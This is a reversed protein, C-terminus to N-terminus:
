TGGDVLTPSTPTADGSAIGGADSARLLAASRRSQDGRHAARDTGASARAQPSLEQAAEEQVRDGQHRAAAARDQRRVSADAVTPTGIANIAGDSIALVEDLAVEAGVEGEIREVVIQDGPGVRYQKGGTKVIAFM